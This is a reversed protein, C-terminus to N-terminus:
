PSSSSTWESDFDFDRPNHTWDKPLPHLNGMSAAYAMADNARWASLYNYFASPNIIGDASVLRM